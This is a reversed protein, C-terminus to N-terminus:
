RDTSRHLPSKTYSFGRQQKEARAAGSAGEKHDYEATKNVNRRTHHESARILERTEEMHERDPGRARM